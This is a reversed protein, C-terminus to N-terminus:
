QSVREGCQRAFVRESASRWWWTATPAMASCGGGARTRRVHGPALRRRPARAGAVAPEDPVARRAPRAPEPCPRLRPLARRARPGEPRRERRGAVRRRGPRLTTGETATRAPDAGILALDDLTEGAALAPHFKFLQPASVFGVLWRGDIRVLHPDWSASRALGDTPLPLARTDLVHRGTTLDADSEALTISVRADRRARDFDGWTCTAVLWRRGGDRVLHTAHDGYVGPRDPRRFFLDARHEAGLRRPRPVLRGHARRRLLRTGGPHGDAPAARRRPSARRRSTVLRVDRLGLQGFAGARGRGRRGDGWGAPGCLLRRRPQGAARSPRLARPGGLTRSAARPRHPPPRDAHPGAAEPREGLRASAAAATIPPGGVPRSARSLVGDALRCVLGTGGSTLALAAESTAPLEATVAAYPAPQPLM